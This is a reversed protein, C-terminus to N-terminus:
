SIPPNVYIQETPAKPHQVALLYPRDELPGLEVGGFPPLQPFTFCPPRFCSHCDRM